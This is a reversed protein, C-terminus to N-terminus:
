AAVQSIKREVFERIAMRAIQSITRDESRAIDEVKRRLESEVKVAITESAQKKRSKM